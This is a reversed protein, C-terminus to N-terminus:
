ARLGHNTSAPYREAVGTARTLSLGHAMRLEQAHTTMKGDAHRKLTCYEWPVM